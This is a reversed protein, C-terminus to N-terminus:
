PGAFRAPPVYLDAPPSEYYSLRHIRL